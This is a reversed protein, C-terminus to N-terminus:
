QRNAEWDLSICMFEYAVGSQSEKRNLSFDCQERRGNDGYNQVAFARWLIIMEGVFHRLNTWKNDCDNKTFTHQQQRPWRQVREAFSHFIFHLKPYIPQVLFDVADFFRCFFHQTIIEENASCAVLAQKSEHLVYTSRICLVWSM